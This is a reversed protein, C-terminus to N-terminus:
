RALYEGDLHWTKLGLIPHGHPYLTSEANGLIEVKEYIDSVCVAHGLLTLTLLLM